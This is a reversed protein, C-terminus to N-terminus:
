IYPPPDEYELLARGERVLLDAERTADPNPDYPIPSGANERVREMDEYSPAPSNVIRLNDIAPSRVRGPDLPGGVVDDEDTLDIIEGEERETTLDIVQNAAVDVLSDLAEDRIIRRAESRELSMIADEMGGMRNQLAMLM